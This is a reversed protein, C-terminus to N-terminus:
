EAARDIKADGTDPVYVEYAVRGARVADRLMRERPNTVRAGSKKTKVELFVVREIRGDELGEFVLFDFIEGVHRVEKLNYPFNAFMPAMHESIKAVLSVRSRAATAKAEERKRQAFELELAARFDSMESLAESKVAVMEAKHAADKEGIKRNLGGIQVHLGDLVETTVLQMGDPIVPEAAVPPVLAASPPVYGEELTPVEVPEREGGRGRVLLAVLVAFILVVLIWPIIVATM